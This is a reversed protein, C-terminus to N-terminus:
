VDDDEASEVVPSPSRNRFSVRRKPSLKANRKSRNSNQHSISENNDTDDKEDLSYFIFHFFFDSYFLHFVVHLFRLGTMPPLSWLIKMM